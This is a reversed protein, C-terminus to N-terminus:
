SSQPRAIVLPCPAQNLIEHAVSGMLIKTLGTRGHTSLCIMDVGLRQAVQCIAEAAHAGKAVHARTAIGRSVAEKPILARLMKITDQIFISDPAGPQPYDSIVELSNSGALTPNQLDVHLLHVTGGQPLLTYARPIAENAIDSFDTCVLIQRAPAPLPAPHVQTSARPVIAVNGAAQNLLTRSVSSHWLKDFGQYQHSGIVILDAEEEKALEKLRKVTDGQNAEVRLRVPVSAGLFKQAAALMDRELIAQVDAPNKDNPMPGACGLRNWEEVPWDVHALVVECPGIDLLQRVWALAAEATQTFNFCVFVRLASEGRAWAIIPTSDRVVLTPNASRGTVRETVRGLLWLDAGRQGACSLVTMRPHHEQALKILVEDARGAPTQLQIEAGSEQLKEVEQALDEQRSKALWELAQDRGSRIDPLELANALILPEKLRAAMAAAAQAAQEALESFDTGCLIGQHGNSQTNTATMRIVYVKLITKVM